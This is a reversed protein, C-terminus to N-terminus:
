NCHQMITAQQCVCYTASHGQLRPDPSRQVVAPMKEAPPWVQFILRKVHNMLKGQLDPSQTSLLKILGSRIVEIMPVAVAPSPARLKGHNACEVSFIFVMCTAEVCICVFLRSTQLYQLSPEGFFTGM